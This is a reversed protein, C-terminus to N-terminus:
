SCAGTEAQRLQFRKIKGTATKPLSEVFEFMRPYRQPARLRVFKQLQRVLGASGEIDPKLVVFAKVQVLEDEDRIGIVACEAVAPHENLINELEIPSVWVGNVKLMDDSRGQYRFYGEEDRCYKDGTVVWEGRMTAQTRARDHWYGIASSEGSVWLDGVEGSSVPAGSEDVVKAQYGPVIQGSSGAVCQGPRNSIFIHLMETSGIGDVIEVGFRDRWREFTSAPLAEGASVCFRLSSLDHKKDAEPLALMRVFLAPTAFFITPHFRGILEFLAEPLTSGHWLVTAAGVFLPFNMGNGLGYAHFLKAASFCIDSDGLELIQQAYQRCTFPIARHLHVVAKLRGTSGSSYLWFAPEDLSVEVPVLEPSAEATWTQWDVAPWSRSGDVLVVQRLQLCHSRIPEILYALTASVIAVQARSHNLLFEYEAPPLSTNLPVPVAGIAMAGYFSAVLEPGDVLLLAVRNEREVGLHKLGNGVRSALRVLEGYTWTTEASFIATKNERGASINEYLVKAVNASAGMHRKQSREM